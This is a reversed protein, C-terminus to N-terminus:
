APPSVPERELRVGFRAYVAQQVAESLANVDDATAGGYNVLVLAHREHMGVPGFRRGKWGAREILWAAPLKVGGAEQRWGPLDPDRAKMDLYQAESVVPNKFFSGANPLDEPYPLKSRRISCVAELIARPTAQEQLLACAQLDPYQLVPRWARPLAFRVAVIVWRGPESRKFMSDRYGFACDDRSLECWTAHALDYALVSHLRECVEVGYAGINQVPAAGVTGPILALNELGPWGNHVTLEVFEHWPEGAAAEVIYSDANAEVLRVGRLRVRLITARVLPPLVVNSGGGLVFVGHESDHYRVLEPVRDIDHVDVVCCAHSLLGLTNALPVPQVATTVTSM